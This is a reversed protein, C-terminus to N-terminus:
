SFQMTNVINNEQQDIHKSSTSGEWATMKISDCMNATM